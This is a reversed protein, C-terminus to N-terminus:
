NLIETMDKSDGGIISNPEALANLKDAMNILLLDLYQIKDYNAQWYAPTNIVGHKHLIEIAGLATLPPRIRRNVEDAIYPFRVGLYTGPCTTAAFMNHRTFNGAATGTYILREIGNRKCIDVCLEITAALATDSVPWDGGTASNSVEITVAQNDNAASSSCWSRDREEVYLGIRGDNGVGYNSSAM